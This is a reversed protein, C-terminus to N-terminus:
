SGTSHSELRAKVGWPDADIVPDLPLATGADRAADVKAKKAPDIWQLMYDNVQETRRSLYFEPWQVYDYFALRIYPADWYPAYFAEDQLIADLEHMAAVRDAEDLDNEYIDILSDTHATGFFWINNNNKSEKFKSHFYQWPGPNFNTTRSMITAEYNRELGREFAAGPELLQLQMDIGMRRYVQQVVTMHRELGKSGFTLTFAAREGKDNLLIGDNGRNAYGAARLHERAKRPDFGYPKLNPNAYITGTFCSVVRFYANYMLKENLSDFDFLYQVAKRFDKNQFLPKELNMALGYMGKPYDVFVLKRRAWGKEMAEFDMETAWIRSTNVRFHDLEGAKFFDFARTPDAIVKVRIRDFNFRGKFYRHDDGWWDKVREYTVYEGSKAESVVYPGQVVPYQLNAEQVWNDTLEIVHAPLAFFNYEELARWSPKKGVLKLTYEDVKEISEFTKEYYNNYYPDVIRPDLLMNYTFVYDDATVKEGDSWRARPDLKYYVTRNDDQVSWHTAMVPYYQDTVPHKGVLAFEMTFKRNWAAFADNSNPGVLRFTLPYATIYDHYTGGRLASPDGIYPEEMNTTWQIGSLDEAGQAVVAPGALVVFALNWLKM